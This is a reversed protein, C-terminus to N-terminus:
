LLELLFSFRPLKTKLARSTDMERAEFLPIAPLPMTYQEDNNDCGGCGCGCCGFDPQGRGKALIGGFQATHPMGSGTSCKGEDRYGLKSAIEKSEEENGYSGGGSYPFNLRGPYYILVVTASRAFLKTTNRVRTTTDIIEAM